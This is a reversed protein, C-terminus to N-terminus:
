TEVGFLFTEFECNVFVASPIVDEASCFARRASAAYILQLEVATSKTTRPLSIFATTCHLGSGIASLYENNIIVTRDFDITEDDFRFPFWDM